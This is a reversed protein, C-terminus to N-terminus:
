PPYSISASWLVLRCGRIVGRGRTANQGPEGAVCVWREGGRGSARRACAGDLGRKNAFALPCPGTTRLRRSSLCLPHPLPHLRHRGRCRNPNRTFFYCHLCRSVSPLPLPSQMAPSLTRRTGQPASGSVGPLRLGHARQAASHQALRPSGTSLLLRTGPSPARGPPRLSTAVRGALAETVAGAAALALPAAPGEAVTVGVGLRVLILLFHVLLLPEEVGRSPVHHSAGVGTPRSWHGPCPVLRADPTSPPNRREGLRHLASTDKVLYTYSGTRHLASPSRRPLRKTNQIIFRLRQWSSTIAGLLSESVGLRLKCRM